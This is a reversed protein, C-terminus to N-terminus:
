RGREENEEEDYSASDKDNEVCLRKYAEGVLIADAEDDNQPSMKGFIRVCQKMDWMKLEKRKKPPKDETDTSIYRRWKTPPMKYFFINLYYCVGEIAAIISSLNKAVKINNVVNLDECIVIDPKHKKIVDILACIMDGAKDDSQSSTKISFYQKLVGNKWVAVGSCRTSTDLSIMTTEKHM